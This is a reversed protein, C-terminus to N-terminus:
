HLTSSGPIDKWPSNKMTEEAEKLIEELPKGLIIVLIEQLANMGISCASDGIDVAAKEEPTESINKMMELIFSFDRYTYFANELVDRIKETQEKSLAGVIRKGNEDFM